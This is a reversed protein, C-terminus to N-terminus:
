HPCACQEDGDDGSEDKGEPCRILCGEGEGRDFIITGKKPALFLPTPQAATATSAKQSDAGRADAPKPFSVLAGGYAVTLALAVIGTRFPHNNNV